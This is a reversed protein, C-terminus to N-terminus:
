HVMFSIPKRLRLGVRTSINVNRRLAKRRTQAWWYLWQVVSSRFLFNGPRILIIELQILSIFTYPISVVEYICSSFMSKWCHLTQYPPAETNTHFMYPQWSIPDRICRTIVIVPSLYKLMRHSRRCGNKGMTCNPSPCNYCPLTVGWVDLIAVSANCCSNESDLCKWQSGLDVPM